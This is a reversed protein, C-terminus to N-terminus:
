SPYLRRDVTSGDGVQFGRNEGWGVVTGDGRLALAHGDQATAIETIGTLRGSGGGVPLPSVPTGSGDNTGNGLQGPVGCVGVEGNDLLAYGARDGGDVDVVNDYGPIAVPSPAYLENSGNGITGNHNSGWSRMSGTLGGPPADPTSADCDDDVGNGLLEIASPHVSPDTEDCDTTKTWGDQDSDVDVVTLDWSRRTTSKGDSATVEIVHSGVAAAAPAYTLTAGHGGADAGDITWSYDIADGDPDNASVSLPLAGGVTITAMRDAPVPASLVPAHNAAAVTVIAHAVGDGAKVAIVYSGARDFTVSPTFGTADDFQGDADLDWAASGSGAGALTVASGASATYPGGADIAAPGGPKAELAKVIDDWKGASTALASVTATHAARAQDLAALLPASDAIVDENAYSRVDTELKAIQSASM